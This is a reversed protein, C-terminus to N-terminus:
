VLKLKHEKLKEKYSAKAEKVTPKWEGSVDHKESYFSYNGKRDSLREPPQIGLYHAFSDFCDGVEIYHQYTEKAKSPKVYTLTIREHFLQRFLTIGKKSIAYYTDEGRLWKDIMGSRIMSEFDGDVDGSCYYNRYFEDDPLYKDKKRNSLLANYTNIGLSHGVKKFQENTM